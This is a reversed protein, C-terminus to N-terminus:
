TSVNRGDEKWINQNSPRYEKWRASAPRKRSAANTRRIAKCIGSASAKRYGFNTAVPGSAAWFTNTKRRIWSNFVESMNTRVHEFRKVESRTVKCKECKNNARYFEDVIFHKIMKIKKFKKKKKASTHRHVIAEFHCANDHIIANANVKTLKMAAQVVEVKDPLSM